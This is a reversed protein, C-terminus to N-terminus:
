ADDFYKSAAEEGSSASSSRTTRSRVRDRSSMGSGSCCGCLALLFGVFGGAFAGAIGMFLAGPGVTEIPVSAREALRVPIEGSDLDFRAIAESLKRARERYLPLNVQIETLQGAIEDLSAALGDRDVSGGEGVVELDFSQRFPKSELKALFRQALDDRRERAGEVAPHSADHQYRASLKEFEASTTGWAAVLTRLSDAAPPEAGYTEALRLQQELAEAEARLATVPRLVQADALRDAEGAAVSPEHHTVVLAILRSGRPQNRVRTRRSLDRARDANGAMAQRYLSPFRLQGEVTSVEAAETVELYATAEYAPKRALGAVFALGGIGATCALILRWRGRVLSVLDPSVDATLDPESPSM